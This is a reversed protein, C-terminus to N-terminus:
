EIIYDKTGITAEKVSKLKVTRVYVEKELGQTKSKNKAPMYPELKEKDVPENEILYESDLAKEVMVDMYLENKHSVFCGDKEGWPRPKAKFDAEKGENLRQDNVEKEYDYKIKGKITSVKEVLMGLYPNAVRENLHNKGTKNMKPETVLTFGMQCNNPAQALKMVLGALSITEKEM